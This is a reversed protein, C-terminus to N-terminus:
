FVHIILATTKYLNFEISEEHGDHVEKNSAQINENLIM